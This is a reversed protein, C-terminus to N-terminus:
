LVRGRNFEKRGVPEPIITFALERGVLQQLQLLSAEGSEDTVVCVVNASNRPVAKHQLRHLLKHWTGAQGRHLKTQPPVARTLCVAREEGAMTLRKELCMNALSNFRVHSALSLAEPRILKVLFNEFMIKM